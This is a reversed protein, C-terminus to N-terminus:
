QQLRIGWGFEENLIWLVGRGLQVWLVVRGWMIVRVLYGIGIVLLEWFEDWEM